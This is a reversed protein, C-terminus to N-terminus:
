KCYKQKYGAAETNGLDAGKGFDQCAGTQDGLISRAIGRKAYYNGDGPNLVISRNFDKLAGKIDNLKAKVLARNFYADVNLTDYQVAKDFDELANKFDSLSGKASGRNNYAKSYTPNIEIAKTFDQIAGRYDQAKKKINGNNYLNLAALTDPGAVITKTTDAATRSQSSIPDQKETSDDSCSLLGSLIIFCLIFKLNQM